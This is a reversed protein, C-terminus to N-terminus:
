PSHVTRRQDDSITRNRHLVDVLLNIKGNVPALKEDLYDKTVMTAEVRTLRTNVSELGTRVTEIQPLVNEEIMEGVQGVVEDVIRPVIREEFKAFKADLKKDHEEFRKDLKQDVVEGIQKLDEKTLMGM